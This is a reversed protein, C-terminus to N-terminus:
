TSNLGVEESCVWRQQLGEGRLGERRVAERDEVKFVCVCTHAGLCGHVGACGYCKCLACALVQGYVGVCPQHTLPSRYLERLLM